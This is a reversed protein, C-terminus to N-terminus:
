PTTTTGSFSVSWTGGVCTLPIGSDTRITVTGTKTQGPAYSSFITGAVVQLHSACESPTSTFAGALSVLTHAGDADNNVVSVDMDSDAGPSLEPQSTGTVTFAPTESSNAFTGNGSGDVGNFIIFGAAAASGVLVLAGTATLAKRRWTGFLRRRM